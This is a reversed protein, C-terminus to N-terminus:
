KIKRTKEGLCIWPELKVVHDQLSIAGRPGTIDEEDDSDTLRGDTELEEPIKAQQHKTQTHDKNAAM